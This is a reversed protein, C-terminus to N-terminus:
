TLGRERYVPYYCYLILLCKKNLSKARLGKYITTTKKQPPAPLKSCDREEKAVVSPETRLRPLSMPINNWKFVCVRKTSQAHTKYFQEFTAVSFMLKIVCWEEALRVHVVNETRLLVAKVTVSFVYVGMKRRFCGCLCCSHMTHMHPCYSNLKETM